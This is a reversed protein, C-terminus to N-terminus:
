SLVSDIVEAEAAALLALKESNQLFASDEPNTHFGHEILMARRCGSQVSNRIVGYYDTDPKDPYSRTKIGRNQTNMVESIKNVLAEALPQNLEPATLSYYACVGRITPYIDPPTASGPANSHLSLFLIANNKGALTGREELSPNDDIDNRTLLVEFGRKELEEKLFGALVFNQTGEYFGEKTTHPNGLRGHGADLVIIGKSM